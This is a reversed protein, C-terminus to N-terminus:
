YPYLWRRDKDARLDVHIFDKGVGVAKFGANRAIGELQIGNYGIIALDAANGMEHSSTGLSTEYGRDRLEQQYNACRYGSNIKIPNQVIDRIKELLDILDTNIVLKDCKSCPCNFEKSQFHTSLSVSNIKDLQMRPM